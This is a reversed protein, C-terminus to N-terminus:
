EVEPLLELWSGNDLWHKTIRELEGSGKFSIFFNQLWNVLLPDNAPIAIGIPEFTFPKLMTSLEAEPYRFTSILCIPYDAVLANVKGDLVLKVAEDYTEAPVFNAKPLLGEVVQQSTSGKLAALTTEPNNLAEGDEISAIAIDKTLISKGSLFYPGVFAVKLNRKGTMTMNSMVMDIEGSKLAPLLQHFPMAKLNLEVGMAAAIFTAIDPEIGIIKGSKTTMNLPPMSAATGVILEGRTAIKELVPSTSIESKSNIANCAGLILPIIILLATLKFLKM